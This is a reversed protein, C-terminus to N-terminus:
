LDPGPPLRPGSGARRPDDGSAGGAAPRPPGAGAAPSVPTGRPRRLPRDWLPRAAPAGGFQRDALGALPPPLRGARLRARRSAGPGRGPGAPADLPLRLDPRLAGAAGGGGGRGAPAPLPVGAAGAAPVGAVASRAPAAHGGRRLPELAALPRERLRRPGTRSLPHRAPDPGGPPPQRPAPHARAAPLPGHRAPRRSAAAPRRRRPRDRVPDPGGARLRGAGAVAGRRVVAPAGLRAVGGGGRGVPRSAPGGPELRDRTSSVNGEVM